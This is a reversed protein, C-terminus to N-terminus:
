SARDSCGLNLLSARIQQLDSDLRFLASDLKVIHKRKKEVEALPLAALFTELSKELPHAFVWGCDLRQVFDGGATEREVLIPVGFYGAEYLRNALTWKSNTNPSCFDFGWCLDISNYLESLDLPYRYPGGYTISPTRALLEDFTGRLVENPYGRLIFRVKDPLKTALMQILEFSKRCKLQGFFGIVVRKDSDPVQPKISQCVNPAPYIKNELFLARGTYGQEAMLFSSLYYPSTYVVLDTRKLCWREVARLAVGAPDKRLLVPQIDAVEYVVRSKLRRLAKTLIALLLNDLNICYIFDTTKSFLKSRLLRCLGQAMAWLRQLYRRDCTRALVAGHIGALSGQALDYQRGRDFALWSVLFGCDSFTRVRKHFRADQLDNSIVLMSPRNREVPSSPDALLTKSLM